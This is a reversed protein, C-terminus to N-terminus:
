GERDQKTTGDRQDVAYDHDEYRNAEGCQTQCLQRRALERRAMEEPKDAMERREQKEIERLRIGALRRDIDDRELEEVVTLAREDEFLSLIKLRDHAAQIDAKKM